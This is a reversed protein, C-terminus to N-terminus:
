NTVQYKVGNLTFEKISELKYSLVYVKREQVQKRIPYIKSNMFREFKSKDIPEGNYYYETKPKIENFREVMLYFNDTNENFLLSKSVHSGVKNSESRFNPELGEKKENTQVRKEYTIGVLFNGSSRKVIKDFYPNGNVDMRVKTETVLHIFTGREIQSLLRIIEDKKM